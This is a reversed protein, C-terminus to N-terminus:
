KSDAVIKVGSFHDGTEVKIWLWVLWFPRVINKVAESIVKVLENLDIGFLESDPLDDAGQCHSLM